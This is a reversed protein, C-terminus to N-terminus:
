SFIPNFSALFSFSVKNNRLTLRNNESIFNSEWELESKEKKFGM